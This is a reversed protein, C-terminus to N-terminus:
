GINLRRVIRLEPIRKMAAVHTSSGSAAQKPPRTSAGSGGRSKLRSVIAKGGSGGPVIM